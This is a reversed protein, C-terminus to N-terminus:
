ENEETHNYAPKVEEGPAYILTYGKKPKETTAADLQAVTVGQALLKKRTMSKSTLGEVRVIKGYGPFDGSLFGAMQRADEVDGEAVLLQDNLADIQERLRVVTQLRNQLKTRLQPTLNLEASPSQQLTLSPM